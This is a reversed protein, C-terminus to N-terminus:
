AATQGRTSPDAPSFCSSSTGTSIGEDVMWQIPETFYRDAAVDGFGSTASAPLPAVALLLGLTAALLKVSARGIM